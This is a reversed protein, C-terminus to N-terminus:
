GHHFKLARLPATIRWSTSARLAQVESRLQAVDRDFASLRHNLDAIDRDKEVILREKESIIGSAGFYGMREPLVDGVLSVLDRYFSMQHENSALATLSSLRSDNPDLFLVGLGYSHHFEVTSFLEKLEAWLRHVGFGREYVCIDHFLIVGSPSMAGFWTTFDEKAADYTHLGDIHLLDISEDRFHRRADAFYSRLLKVNRFNADLHAKLEAYIRDGEYRGAHDDGYWSDIGYLTTDTNYSKAATCAAILSAGNHVGLEVYVRPKLLKQLVFMFPVHGKWATVPLKTPVNFLPEILSSFDEAVGGVIGTFSRTIPAAGNKLSIPTEQSNIGGSFVVGGLSDIVSYAHAVAHKDQEIELGILGAIQSATYNPPERYETNVYPFSFTLERPANDNVADTNPYSMALNCLTKSDLGGTAFQKALEAWHYGNGKRLNIRERMLRNNGNALKFGFQVRSQIPIHICYADECDVMQLADTGPALISHYGQQVEFNPSKEAVSKRLIVKYFISSPGQHVFTSSFINGGDFTSPCVNLWPLRMVDATAHKSLFDELEVRSDFPLFEDCDLFFLFDSQNRLFAERAFFTAVESQPYGAAKLHYLSFKSDDRAQVMSVSDDTSGHNLVICRDFLADAQDLFPGLIPSENRMMVFCAIKM